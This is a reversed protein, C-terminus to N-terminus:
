KQSHLLHNLHMKPIIWALIEMIGILSQVWDVALLTCCIACCSMSGSSCFYRESSATSRSCPGFALYTNLFRIVSDARNKHQSPTITFHLWDHHTNVSTRNSKDMWTVASLVKLSTASQLNLCLVDAKLKVSNMCKMHKYKHRQLDKTCGELIRNSMKNIWFETDAARRGGCGIDGGKIYDSPQVCEVLKWKKRLSIVCETQAPLRPRVSASLSGAPMESITELRMRKDTQMIGYTQHTWYTCHPSDNAWPVHLSCCPYLWVVNVEKEVTQRTWPRLM